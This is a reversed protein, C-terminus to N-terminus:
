PSRLLKRLGFGVLLGVALVAAGIGATLLGDSAGATSEARVARSVDQVTDDGGPSGDSDAPPEGIRPRAGNSPRQDVDATGNGASASGDGVKKAADDAREIGVGFLPQGRPGAENERRAQGGGGADRRAQELPIAYEKGAPTDPDFFVGEEQAAAVPVPGAVALLVLLSTRIVWRLKFPLAPRHDFSGSTRGARVRQEQPRPV